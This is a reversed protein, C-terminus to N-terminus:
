AHPRRCTPRAAVRPISQGGGPPRLIGCWRRSRPAPLRARGSGASSTGASRVAARSWWSWGSRFRSSGYRASAPRPRAGPRAPASAAM